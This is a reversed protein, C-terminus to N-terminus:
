TMNERIRDRRRAEAEDRYAAEIFKHGPGRLWDLYPRNAPDFTM